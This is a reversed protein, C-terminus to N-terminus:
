ALMQQRQDRLQRRAYDAHFGARTRVVPRPQKTLVAVGHAQHGGLKNRGVAHRALAALVIGRVRCRDAFGHPAGVHAENRDLFFVLLDDRAQM